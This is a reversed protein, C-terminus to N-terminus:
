KTTECNCNQFRREEKVVEQKVLKDNEFYFATTIIYWDKVYLGEKYLLKKTTINDSYSVEQNYPKGYRSVFEQQTVGLEIKSNSFKSIHRFTSCSCLLSLLICFICIKKM